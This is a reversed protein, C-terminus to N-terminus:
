SQGGFVLISIFFGLYMVVVILVILLAGWSGFQGKTQVMQPVGLRPGQASHLAMFIAGFLNGVVIGLAASWAPQGFLTTALGGTVISLIMINTGFWITFMDRNTGHRQDLPVPQITASEISSVSERRGALQDSM